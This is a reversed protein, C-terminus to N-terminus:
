FRGFFFVFFFMKVKFSAKREEIASTSIARSLKSLTDYLETLKQVIRLISVSPINAKAWIDKIQSAITKIAAEKTQKTVNQEYCIAKIADSVTPLKTQQLQLYPEGLIQVINTTM